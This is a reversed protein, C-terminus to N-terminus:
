QGGDNVRTAVASSPLGPQEALQDRSTALSVASSSSYAVPRGLLGQNVPWMQNFNRIGQVNPIGSIQVAQLCGGPGPAPYATQYPYGLFNIPITYGNAAGPAAMMFGSNSPLVVHTQQPLGAKSTPAPSPQSVLHNTSPHTEDQAQSQNSLRRKKPIVHSLKEDELKSGTASVQNSEYQPRKRDNPPTNLTVERKVNVQSLASHVQLCQMQPMDAAAVAQQQMDTLHLGAPSVTGPMGGPYMVYGFPIVFPVQPIQVATNSVVAALAASTVTPRAVASPLGVTSSAQEHTVASQLGLNNVAVYNLAPHMPAELKSYSSVAVKAPAQVAGTSAPTVGSSAAPLLKPAPIIQYAVQNGAVSVPLTHYQLMAAKGPKTMGNLESPLTSIPVPKPTIDTSSTETPAQSRSSLTNQKVASEQIGKDMILSTPVAPKNAKQLTTFCVQTLPHNTAHCMSQSSSPSSTATSKSKSAILQQQQKGRWNTATTMTIAHHKRDWLSFTAKTKPESSTKSSTAITKVTPSEYQHIFFTKKKGLRDNPKNRYELWEKGSRENVLGKRWHHLKGRKGEAFMPSDRDSENDSTSIFDDNHSSLGLLSASAGVYLSTMKHETDARMSSPKEESPTQPVNQPQSVSFSNVDIYRKKMPIHTQDASSTVPQLYKVKVQYNPYGPLSASAENINAMTVAVDANNQAVAPIIPHPQQSSSEATTKENSVKRESIVKSPEGAVVALYAPETNSCSTPIPNLAPRMQQAQTREQTKDLNSVIAIKPLPAVALLNADSKEFIPKSFVMAPAPHIENFDLDSTSHLPPSAGSGVNFRPFFSVYNSPPSPTVSRGSRKGYFKVPSRNPSCAMAREILRVADTSNLDNANRCFLKYQTQAATQYHQQIVEGATPEKRQTSALPPPRSAQQSASIVQSQSNQPQQPKSYRLEPQSSQPVELFVKTQQPQQQYCLSKSSEDTDVFTSRLEEEEAESATSTSQQDDELISCQVSNCSAQLLHNDKKIAEDLYKEITQKDVVKLLDQKLAEFLKTKAIVENKLLAKAQDYETSKRKLIQIHRLAAKLITLNSSRRMGPRPISTKLAEFCEKLHARRNKELQNHTLTVTRKMHKIQLATYVKDDEGTKVLSPLLVNLDVQSQNNKSHDNASSSANPGSHPSSNTEVVMPNNNLHWNSTRPLETPVSKNATSIQPETAVLRQEKSKFNATQQLDVDVSQALAAIRTKAPPIILQRSSMNADSSPPINEAAARARILLPHMYSPSLSDKMFRTDSSLVHSTPKDDRMISNMIGSENAKSSTAKSVPVKLHDTQTMQTVTRASNELSSTISATALVQTEENRNSKNTISNEQDENSHSHHATIHSQSKLSEPRCTVTAKVEPVNPMCGVENLSSAKQENATSKNVSAQMQITKGNDAECELYQAAELLTHLSM